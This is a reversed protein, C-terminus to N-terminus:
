PASGADDAKGALRAAIWWQNGAQDMVGAARDGYPMDAPERVSTAGAELARAYHGDVGPLYLHVMSRLAPFEDNASGLMVVADGLRVEAHVVRGAEDEAKQILTGDFAAELFAILQQADDVILYPAVTPYGDPVSQQDANM